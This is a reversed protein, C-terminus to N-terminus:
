GVHGLADAIRVRCAKWTPLLASLLGIGFSVLLCMIITDRHIHFVPLFDSMKHSFVKAVPYSM